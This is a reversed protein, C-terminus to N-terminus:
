GQVSVDRRRSRRLASGALGFGAVMLGWTAPEPVASLSTSLFGSVVYRLPAGPCTYTSCEQSGSPGRLLSAHATIDDISGTVALRLYGDYSPSSHFFYADSDDPNHYVNIDPLYHYGDISGDTTVIDHGAPYGADSFSFFGTAYTGDNFRVNKLYLTTAADAASAAGLAVALAAAITRISSRISRHSM